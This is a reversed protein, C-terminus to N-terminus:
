KLLTMKRTESYDGAQLRYFYVGSSVQTGGSSTGDWTVTHSGASQCDDVLTCVQQGLTNYIVLTVVQAKRLEYHIATQPNFPNPFNQELDFEKPLSVNVDSVDTATYQGYNLFVDFGRGANRNDVWSCFVFGNNLAVAPHKELSPASGTSVPTNVGIHFGDERLVQFYGRQIGSRSDSWAVVIGDDIDGDTRLECFDAATVDSVQINGLELNGNFGYRYWKVVSGSASTQIAAIYFAGKYDHVFIDADLIQVQSTDVDLLHLDGVAVGSANFRQFFLEQHGNVISLFSVVFSADSRLGVHPSFSEVAGSADTVLQNGDVAVGSSNYRQLYVQKKSAREDVWVIVSSGDNGVAIDPQSKPKATGDDNVVFNAGVRTGNVSLRQAFINQGAIGTATRSDEWVVVMNGGTSTGIRPNSQLSRGPDDNIRMAVGLPAGSISSRQLYIDGGDAECDRWVIANASQPLWAIDPTHQQSGAQDDNIILNDLTKSLSLDLRQQLIDSNGNRADTWIVDLGSSRFAIAPFGREGLLSNDQLTVNGGSLKGLNSIKQFKIQATSTYDSWVCGVGSDRAAALRLDWCLDAADGNIRFSTDVPVSSKSIVQGYVSQGDNRTSIWGAFYGTGNIFRIQPSFQYAEPNTAELLLDDYLPTGDNKLIRFYGHGNGSRADEWVVAFTTDNSAVVDPAIRYPSNVNSNVRFNTGILDAGDGIIQGYIDAGDRADEWVVVFGGTSLASVAPLNVITTAVNGNLKVQGTLPSLSSNFVMAKIAASEEENWVLALKGGVNVALRPQRSSRFSPDHILRVNSGTPLGDVTLLQAYIDWQGNREDEWVAVGKGDPFYAIDSFRQTFSAAGDDNNVKIDIAALALSKALPNSIERVALNEASPSVAGVSQQQWRQWRQQAVDSGQLNVVLILLHTLAVIAAIHKCHRLNGGEM